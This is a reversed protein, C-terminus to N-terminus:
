ILVVFSFKQKRAKQGPVAFFDFLLNRGQAEDGTNNRAQKWERRVLVGM